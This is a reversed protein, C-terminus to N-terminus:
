AKRRRAVVLAIIGLIAGARWPVPKTPDPAPTIACGTKTITRTGGGGPPPTPAAFCDGSASDCAFGSPCVNTSDCAQTCTYTTGDLSGCIGSACSTNDACPDGLQGQGLPPTTGGDSPPPPPQTWPPPTYNGDAASTIATNVIFDKFADTRTYVGGVCATSTSGGRSLVGFSVPTSANFEKQEYASSGSDGECTGDGSEFESPLLQGGTNGCDIKADGPICVLNISQRIRRTGSSSLSNPANIGYGIATVTSAYRTHDTMKYQVVPTVFTGAAEKLSVNDMLEIMAMDNGCFTNGPTRYIKKATHWGTTGQGMDGDTTISFFSTPAHQAGFKTSPNTCDIQQPSQDVCHRATLVLNPAILAGSCILQCQGPSGVCVGVAFSHKLDDTGGQIPSSASGAQEVPASSSCGAFVACAFVAAASLTVARPGVM